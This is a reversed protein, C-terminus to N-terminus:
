SQQQNTLANAVQARRIAESLQAILEQENGSDAPPQPLPRNLSTLPMQAPPMRGSGVPAGASRGGVSSGLLKAAKAWDIGGDGGMGAAQLYPTDPDPDFQTNLLSPADPV